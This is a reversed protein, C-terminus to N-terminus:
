KINDIANLVIDIDTFYGTMIAVVEGDINVIPCGSETDYDQANYEKVVNINNKFCGLTYTSPMKNFLSNTNLGNTLEKTFFVAYDNNGIFDNDYILLEPYIYENTFNAMFKFYTYKGTDLGNYNYHVCHGATILYFKDNYKISFATFRSEYNDNSAFGSYVCKLYDNLNAIFNDHAQVENELEQVKIQENDGLQITAPSTEQVTESIVASEASTSVSDNLSVSTSRSDIAWQPDCSICLLTILLAIIAFFKKM